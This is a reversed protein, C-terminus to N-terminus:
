ECASRRLVYAEDFAVHGDNNSADMVDGGARVTGTFRDPFYRFPGAPCDERIMSAAGGQFTFSRGNATGTASMRWTRDEGYATCRPPTPQDRRGRWLRSQISGTLGGASRHIRLTMQAGPCGACAGRLQVQVEAGDVAVLAIDGGDAQLAPRIEEDLIQKVREELTQTNQEESM